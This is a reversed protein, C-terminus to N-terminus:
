LSRCVEINDSIKVESSILNLTPVNVAKVVIPKVDVICGDLEVKATYKGQKTVEFSSPFGPYDYLLNGDHYVKVNTRSSQLYSDSYFSISGQPISCVEFTDKKLNVKNSMYYSLNNIPSDVMSYSFYTCGNESIEAQYTSLPKTKIKKASTNLLIKNEYWKVKFDKFYTTDVELNLDVLNCHSVNTTSNVVNKFTQLSYIPVDNVKGFISPNKFCVTDTLKLQTVKNTVCGFKDTITLNYNGQVNKTNIPIETNINSKFNNPGTILYQGNLNGIRFFAYGRNSDYVNFIMSENLNNGFVINKTFPFKDDIVVMYDGSHNATLNKIVPNQETSVFGLPGTWYFKSGGGAKLQLEKTTNLCVSTPCDIYQAQIINSFLISIFLFIVFRSM